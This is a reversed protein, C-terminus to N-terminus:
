APNPVGSVFGAVLEMVETPRELSPLHATGMLMLAQANPVTDAIHQSRTQIHPFDLDGWLSLVPVRLEALRAYASPQDIDPGPPSARLANLHMGAFLTRAVDGARGEQGLAGDLWIRTKLANLREFDRAAEAAKVDAMATAMAPSYVPDPAGTVTAAILVLGAVRTPHRLATDIAIRGGQSCGVLIASRGDAEADLVALLDDIASHEEHQARTEGFGRRDYLIAKGVSAVREVEARWMRRDAVSAHLFAIPRGQGFSEVALMARGSRVHTSMGM